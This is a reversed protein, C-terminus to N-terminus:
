LSEQSLLPPKRKRRKITYTGLATISAATLLITAIEPIVILTTGSYQSRENFPGDYNQPWQGLAMILAKLNTTPQNLNITLTLNQPTKTIQNLFFKHAYYIDQRKADLKDRITSTEYTNTFQCGPYPPEYNENPEQPPIRPSENAPIPTFDQQELIATNLNNETVATINSLADYTPKNITILLWINKVPTHGVCFIILKAPTTTILPEGTEVSDIPIIRINAAPTAKAQPIATLTLIIILLVTLATATQTKM